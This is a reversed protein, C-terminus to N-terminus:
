LIESAESEANYLTRYTENSSLLKKHTGQGALTGKDIVNIIDADVITSLRHAVIIVTHNEILENITKKIYEQSENDLASTAEDFLIIKTNLILTRAIALRQKQGGSLNVGGEGIITDYKDPLSMIYDDIYAKKCYERVEELTIDEKVLKFNDLFSMNFIFPSQRIISINSRLSEETLDQINIGDILIEGDTVDFYRLLLNFITSKGNGSRGVFAIKKHPEITLNLDNLTNEEEDSYKFNVNRFEITGEPNFLEKTGFKEPTYLRDELIDSIRGLSVLVKNYNVGFKGLSEVVDDIRYICTEVMIFISYSIRGEMFLWGCTIFVIFQLIFYIGNNLSFYVAERRRIKKANFYLEDLIGDITKETNKRIGLSKIERIGTLNETALRSYEDGSEKIKEQSKQIKPFFYNSIFGMIIAFIIIEVVLVWSVFFCYVFIGVAIIVRCIMRILQSLLEIINETDGTLRNMFEGVGIEEFARAPLTDIKKYLDKSVNKIFKIELDQYLFSTPLDLVAYFLVFMGSYILTYIGFIKFEHTLLAELAHGWVYATFIAPLMTVVLLIVYAFIKLKDEKLYHWIIKFDAVNKKKQEKRKDM